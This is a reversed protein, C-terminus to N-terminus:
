LTTQDTSFQFFNCLYHLQMTITILMDYSIHSMTQLLMLATRKGLWDSEELKYLKLYITMPILYIIRTM